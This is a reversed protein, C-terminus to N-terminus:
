RKQQRYDGQQKNQNQPIPKLYRHKVLNDTNRWTSADVETGTELRKGAKVEFPKAVVHTASM